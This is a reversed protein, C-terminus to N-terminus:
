RSALASRMAAALRTQENPAQEAALLADALRAVEHPAQDQSLKAKGVTRTPRLVFGTTAPALRRAYDPVSDLRWPQPLGAELHDVTADLVRLTTDDDLLEPRGHLHVVVFDWTPVHPGDRYWSASLYGQPGQAILVAPHDGLEHLQADARALHGLVTVGKTDDRDVVVPLHSVVLEGANSVLTAWPHRRVLERLQAPDDIRFEPQELV